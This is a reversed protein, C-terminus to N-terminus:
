RRHQKRAKARAKSERNALRRAEADADVANQAQGALARETKAVTNGDTIDPIIFETVPQYKLGMRDAVLLANTFIGQSQWFYPDARDRDGNPLRPTVRFGKGVPKAMLCESCNQLWDWLPTTGGRKREYDIMLEPIDLDSINYFVEDEEGRSDVRPSDGFPVPSVNDPHQTGMVRPLLRALDGDPLDPRNFM